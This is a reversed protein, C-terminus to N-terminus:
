EIARRLLDWPSTKHQLMALHFDRLRPDFRAVAVGRAEPTRDDLLRELQAQRASARRSRRPYYTSLM